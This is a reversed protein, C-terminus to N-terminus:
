IKENIKIDLHKVYLNFNEILINKKILINKQNGETGSTKFLYYNDELIEYDFQKLFNTKTYVDKIM